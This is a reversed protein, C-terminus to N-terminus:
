SDLPFRLRFTTAESNSEVEARGAHLRMISQVIALGLGASIASDSRAQDARYFRDFLRLIHDADIVSGPNTVTVVTAGDLMSTGLRISQGRPTYRLANAVLNNVARRFLTADAMVVHGADVAIRVGADDAIGEFYDAIRQLEIGGELAQKNLVVQAHGARALFLMSEIMRALREYEEVNSALLAQYDGASRSRSLAVQTQVMLNNIPTRFDHALDASFQSLRQFSDHLRDLMANFSEILTQLEQPASAVDLRTDLRQATISHAQRAIVRIPRLGRHVLVYGLLGALLAGSLAAVSVTRSYADLLVNTASTTRAVIIQVQEKGGLAGSAAVARASLGPKITWSQVSSKSPMEDASAISLAPLAGWDQHNEMLTEGDASKLRLFLGGHGAAADVFRHPDRRISDVSPTEGVLHRIYGVKDLLDAEERAALQMALSNYLHMGVAAFTLMAVAAFLVGLRATLSSFRPLRM